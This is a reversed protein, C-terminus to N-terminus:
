GRRRAAAPLLLLALDLHPNDRKKLGENGPKASSPKNSTPTSGSAPVPRLPM